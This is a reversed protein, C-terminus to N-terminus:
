DDLVMEMLAAADDISGSQALTKRRERLQRSKSPKGKRARGGPKLVPAAKRKEEIQPRGKEELADYMRAKRAMVLLRHDYVQSLDQDSYGYTEGLYQKLDAKEKAAVEKDQWEPVAELLREQEKALIAQMQEQQEAKAEEGVRAQEAEVAALEEKHRQYDAWEAAFETPNQQRLKDWQEATRAAPGMSDLAERVQELRTAYEERRQAAEAQAQEIEKRTEAVAQTKRTYDAQRLYGNRMEDLTVEIEEGDVELTYRPQDDEADDPEEEDADAEEDQLDSADIEDELEDVEEVSEEAAPEDQSQNDDERFEPDDALIGSLRDEANEQPTGGTEYPMRPAAESKQPITKEAM